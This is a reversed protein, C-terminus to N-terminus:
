SIIRSMETALIESIEAAKEVIMFHRGSKIKHTPHTCANPLVNDNTGHIHIYNTPPETNKWNVLAPIAWHVFDDDADRIVDILLNRHEPNYAAFWKKLISLNKMLKPSLIKYLHYKGSFRYFAPIESACTVSSVLFLKLPKKHKAIEVAIMGGMSLGLLFFPNSEDIQKGMRTAYDEITESSMTSLWPLYVFKVEEIFTLYQFVREDAGLGSICYCNIM